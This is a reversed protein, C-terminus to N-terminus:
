PRDPQILDDPNGPNARPSQKQEQLSILLCVPL